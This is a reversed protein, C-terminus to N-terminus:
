LHAAEVTHAHTQLCPLVATILKMFKAGPGTGANGAPQLALAADMSRTAFVSIVQFTCNLVTLKLLLRAKSSVVFTGRCQQVIM